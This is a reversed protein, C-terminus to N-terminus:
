ALPHTQRPTIGLLEYIEAADMTEQVLLTEALKELSGRHETLLNMAKIYCNEILSRIEEDILRATEESYENTGYSSRDYVVMGLKKSMGFKCIMARALQTAYTFDSSAGTSVKHFVLDEAARGGLAAMISAIMEDQSHTHKEGEPLSHTVGLAHGRPIITVKHLPDTVEPLML